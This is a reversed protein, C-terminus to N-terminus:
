YSQYAENKDVIRKRIPTKTTYNTRNLIIRCAKEIADKKNATQLSIIDQATNRKITENIQRCNVYIRLITCYRSQEITVAFYLDGEKTPIIKSKKEQM